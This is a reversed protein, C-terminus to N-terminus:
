PRVAFAENTTFTLPTGGKLVVQWGKTQSVAAAGAGAGILGGVLTGNSGGVQHGIVAGALTTAGIAGLNRARTSGAVVPEMSGRVRYHQDGVTVSSLELDLMARDGPHAPTVSTVTGAVLSGAPVVDRGDLLKANRVSGTWADGVRADESTLATTLTVDLSSGSPLNLDAARHSSPGGSAGNQATARDDRCGSLLAAAVFAASCIIRVHRM